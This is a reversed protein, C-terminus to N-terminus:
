LYSKIEYEAKKEELWNPYAAQIKQDFLLDKIEEKHDVFEAAKAAKKDVLMIIHYGFETKVPESIADIELAFAAKEFEEAMEGKGFFGLDGGNDANSSDTSYEKALEAFDNGNDIEKKVKKATAEDEALIHSTKVQEEQDFSDKNEEFYTKMEEETVDISPGILKEALLYIEIDERIRDMSVQNQELASAFAEEGGYSEQLKTLEEDIENGTVKVKEKSAEMEIVKNTILTDLIDAGYMEALKTNLEDKTIKEGDISAATETKNFATAFILLLGLFVATFIMLFKNNKMISIM